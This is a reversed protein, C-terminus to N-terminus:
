PKSEAGKEGALGTAAPKEDAPKAGDVPKAEEGAKPEEAPETALAKAVKSLPKKSRTSTTSKRRSSAKPKGGYYDQHEDEARYFAKLPYLQTVIPNRFARAEVLQQYSKLAAKRQAENHYLIISRYQTGVDPGQRNPTTPDHCQWFVKLLDEYSIVAPDYQVMVVEAHGTFGEHVMEYTPNRLQGGAYGSVASIVGSLREFDSEVHWFCGAGFTALEYKPESGSSSSSASSDTRGASKKSKAKSSAAKAKASGPKATSSKTAPATEDPSSAQNASGASASEAKGKESSASEQAQVHGPIVLFLLLAGSAALFRWSM